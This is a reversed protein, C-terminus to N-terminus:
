EALQVLAPHGGALPISDYVGVIGPHAIASAIEIERDFRARQTRSLGHDHRLVKLAVRRTRKQIAEYVLGQGGRSVERALEYGPISERGLDPHGSQLPRAIVEAFARESRAEEYLKRCDACVRVHVFLSEDPAAIRALEQKEAARHCREKSM